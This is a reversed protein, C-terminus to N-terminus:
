ADDLLYLLMLRDVIKEEPTRVMNNIGKEIGTGRKTPRLNKKQEKL